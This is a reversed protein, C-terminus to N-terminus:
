QCMFEFALGSLWTLGRYTAATLRYLGDQSM